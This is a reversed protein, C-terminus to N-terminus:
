ADEMDEGLLIRRAELLGDLRLRYYLWDKFYPSEVDEDLAAVRRKETRVTMISIRRDLAEMPVDM